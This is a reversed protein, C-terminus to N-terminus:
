QAATQQAAVNPPVPVAPRTRPITANGQSGPGPTPANKAGQPGQAEPPGGPPLEGASQPQQVANMATISPIGQALANSLDLKDDMRKLVESALWTPDIGPMQLLYPLIMNMNQMEQAKNPRGSSGAQVELYIEEAAELKSVEPWVAGDGAIKIAMPKSVELLCMEGGARGLDTLFDDLDDINSQLSSLRSSEAISSETATVDGGAGGINAEQSGVVRLVDAFIQDTSYLNPDILPGQYPQLVDGVKQGPQIQSLEIVANDPHNKFADADEESLMGKATVVKPRNAIRHRRLGERCRNYERQLPMLLRVDSVPFIKTEHEGDNFSLTFWPWFRELLPMPTAPARLYDPWGEVITCVTGSKREYVEYVCALSEGDGSGLGMAELKTPSTKSYCYATYSGSVDVNYVEKIEAPTMVYEQAVRDCGIFGKLQRCKRDPILSWSQPYDFIPGERVIIEPESQLAELTKRLEEMEADDQSIVQDQVDALLTQLHAIRESADAIGVVVEPRKELDRQFGLKVYAVGCSIARRVMQKMQSKFPVSQEGVYYAWVIELTQAVNDYLKRKQIGQQVDQILAQAQQTGAAILAQQQPPPMPTAGTPDNAAATMQQAQMQAAKVAGMAMQLSQANGDWIKFDMRDRRKATFTPNKAYLASVRQNVHRQVINAIYREDEWSSQDPWQWGRAFNNDTRMQDFDAKWHAKDLQVEQLLKAVGLRRSEAIDPAERQIQSPGTVAASGPTSIDGGSGRPDPAQMSPDGGMMPGAGPVMPPQPNSPGMAM